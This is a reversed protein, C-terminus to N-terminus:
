EKWGMRVLKRKGGPYTAITLLLVKDNLYNAAVVTRGKNAIFIRWNTFKNLKGETQRFSFAFSKIFKKVYEEKERTTALKNVTGGVNVGMAVFSTWDILRATSSKGKALGRLCYRAFDIDNKVGVCGGIFVFTLFLIFINDFKAKM